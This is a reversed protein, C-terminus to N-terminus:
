EGKRQRRLKTQVNRIKQSHVKISNTWAMAQASCLADDNNDNAMRWLADAFSKISAAATRVNERDAPKM